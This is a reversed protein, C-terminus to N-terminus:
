FESNKERGFIFYLIGIVIAVIIMGVAIYTASSSELTAKESSKVEEAQIQETAGTTEPKAGCSQNVDEKVINATCNKVDICVEKQIGNICGGWSCMWESVCNLKSEEGPELCEGNICVGSECSIGENAAVYTWNSGVCIPGLRCEEHLMYNKRQINCVYGCCIGGPCVTGDEFYTRNCKYSLCAETTCDSGDDCHGQELCEVCTHSINNCYPIPDNCDGGDVCGTPQVCIGGDCKGGSECEIDENYSIYEWSTGVCTPGIRCDYHFNSNGLSTDCTGSCCHGGSCDSGDAINSNICVNSVCSDTTCENTDNCHAIGLCEVCTGSDCYPTPSTCNDDSVCQAYVSATSFVLLIGFLIVGKKM